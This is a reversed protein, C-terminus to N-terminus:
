NENNASLLLTLFGDSKGDHELVYNEHIKCLDEFEDTTLSIEVYGCKFREPYSKSLDLNEDNIRDSYDYLNWPVAGFFDNISDREFNKKLLEVDDEGYHLNDKVLLEVKEEDTLNDALRTNVVPEKKWEKWFNSFEKQQECDLDRYKSQNFMYDDIETSEMELIKLLSTVRQNGGLITKDKDIIIPRVKLMNPFVLISEILKDQMFESMIRPNNPNLKLERIDINKDM